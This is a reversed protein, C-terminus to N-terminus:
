QPFEGVGLSIDMFLNQNSSFQYNNFFVYAAAAGESSILTTTISSNQEQSLASIGSAVSIM